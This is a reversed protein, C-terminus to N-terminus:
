RNDKKGNSIELRTITRKNEMIADEIVALRRENTAWDRAADVSTYRNIASSAIAAEMNKQGLGLFEMKANISSAWWVGGLTQIILTFMIGLLPYPISIGESRREKGDWNKEM